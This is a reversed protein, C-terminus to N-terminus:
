LQAILGRRAEVLAKVEAAAVKQVAIRDLAPHVQVGEPVERRRLSWLELGLERMDGALMAHLLAANRRVLQPDRLVRRVAHSRCVTLFKASLDGRVRRLARCHLLFHPLDEPEGSNCLRCRAHRAYDAGHDRHHVHATVEALPYVNARLKTVLKTATVDSVRMLRRACERKTHLRRFFRLSHHQAAAWRWVLEGWDNVARSAMARVTARAECYAEHDHLDQRQPVQPLGLRQLALQLQAHQEEVDAGAWGDLLWRVSPPVWLAPARRTTDAIHRLMAILESCWTPWRAGRAESAVYTALDMRYCQRQYRYDPQIILEAWYMVKAGFLVTRPARLGLEGLLFARSTRRPLDLARAATHAISKLTDAHLADNKTAWVEAGFLLYSYAQHLVITTIRPDHRGYTSAISGVRSLNARTAKHAAKAQPRMNATPTVTTGLYADGTAKSLKTTKPCVGSARVYLGDDTVEWWSQSGSQMSPVLHRTKGRNFKGGMLHVAKTAARIALELHRPNQAVILLDDAHLLLTLPGCHVTRPGGPPGQVTPWADLQLPQDMYVRGQEVCRRVEAAVQAMYLVFLLPSTIGGQLVGQSPYLWPGTTGDVKVRFKSGNYMAQLVRTTTDHVGASQLRGFVWTWAARDFATALDLAVVQPASTMGRGVRAMIGAPDPVNDMPRVPQGTPSMEVRPVSRARTLTALVFLNDACCRGPRYAAQTEGLRHNKEAVELIRKTHVEEFLKRISNLVTISRYSSPNSHDKGPKALM